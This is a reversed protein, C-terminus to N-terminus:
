EDDKVLESAPNAVDADLIQQIYTIMKDATKRMVDDNTGYKLFSGEIDIILPSTDDPIYDISILNAGLVSNISSLVNLERNPVEYQTYEDFNGMNNVFVKTHIANLVKGHLLVVRVCGLNSQHIPQIILAQSITVNDHAIRIADVENSARLKIIGSGDNSKIVFPPAMDSWVVRSLSERNFYSVFESRIMRIGLDIMITYLNYKNNCTLSTQLTNFCTVGKLMLMNVFTIGDHFRMVDNDVIALVKSTNAYTRTDFSDTDDKVAVTFARKQHLREVDFQFFRDIYFIDFGIQNSESVERMIDILSKIKDSLNVASHTVVIIRGKAM